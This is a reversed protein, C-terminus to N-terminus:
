ENNTIKFSQIFDQIGRMQRILNLRDEPTKYDDAYLIVDIVSSCTELAWDISSTQMLSIENITSESLVVGNVTTTM